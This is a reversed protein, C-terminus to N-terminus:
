LRPAAAPTVEMGLEKLKERVTEVLGEGDTAMVKPPGPRNSSYLGLLRRLVVALQSKEIVCLLKLTPPHAYMITSKMVGLWDIESAWNLFPEEYKYVMEWARDTEGAELLEYFARAIDPRFPAIPCLYGASGHAHGFAFNRMQGGSCVAFDLGQTQRCLDYYYYFQDAQTQM